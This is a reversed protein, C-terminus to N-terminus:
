QKDRYLSLRSEIESLSRVNYDWIITFKGLIENFVVIHNFEALVAEANEIEHDSCFDFHYTIQSEKADRYMWDFTDHGRFHEIEALGIRKSPYFIPYEQNPEVLMGMFHYCYDKILKRSISIVERIGVSKVNICIKPSEELNEYRVLSLKLEIEKPTLFLREPM